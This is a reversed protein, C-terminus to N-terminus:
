HVYRDIIFKLCDSTIPSFNMEYEEPKTAMGEMAWQVLCGIVANSFYRTLLDIDKATMYRDGLITVIEDKCESYCQKYLHDRLNNQTESTLAAVYFDRNLYMYNIIKTTLKDNNEVEILKAVDFDFIWCVLQQKDRFHYYFTKRNIGCCDIIDQVSIKDLQKELVLKKITQAILIKTQENKPM